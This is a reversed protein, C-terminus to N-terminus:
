RMVSPSWASNLYARQKQYELNSITSAANSRVTSILAAGREEGKAAFKKVTKFLLTRNNDIQKALVPSSYTASLANYLENDYHSVIYNTDEILQKVITDDTTYYGLLEIIRARLNHQKHTKLPYEVLLTNLVDKIQAIDTPEIGRNIYEFLLMLINYRLRDDKIRLKDVLKDLQLGDLLYQNRYSNVENLFLQIDDIKNTNLLKSVEDFHEKLETTRKFVIYKARGDKDYIGYEELKTGFVRVLTGDDCLDDIKRELTVTDYGVINRHSLALSELLNKKRIYHKNGFAKRVEELFNTDNRKKKSDSEKIKDTMKDIM